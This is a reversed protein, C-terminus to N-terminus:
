LGDQPTTTPIGPKHPSTRDLPSIEDTSSPSVEPFILRAKLIAGEYLTDAPRCSYIRLTTPAHETFRSLFDLRLLSSVILKKKGKNGLGVGASVGHDCDAM